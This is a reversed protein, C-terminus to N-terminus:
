SASPQDYTVFRVPPKERVAHSVVALVLYERGHPDTEAYQKVKAEAEARTLPRGYNPNYDRDGAIVRITGNVCKSTRAIFFSEGSISDNATEQQEGGETQEDGEDLTEDQEDNYEM